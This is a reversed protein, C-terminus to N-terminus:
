IENDDIVFTCIVKPFAQARDMGGHIPQLYVNMRKIIAGIIMYMKYFIIEGPYVYNLMM